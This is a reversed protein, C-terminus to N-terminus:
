KTNNVVRKGMYNQVTTSNIANAMFNEERRLTVDVTNFVNFGIYQYLPDTMLTIIMIMVTKKTTTAPLYPELAM